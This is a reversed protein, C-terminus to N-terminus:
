FGRAVARLERALIAPAQQAVRDNMAQTVRTNSLAEPPGFTYLEAIPLRGKTFAFRGFAEGTPTGRAKGGYGGRAFVHQGFRKVMFAHPIVFTRGKVTVQVGQKTQRPRFLSLPFGKGKATISAELRGSNADEDEIYGRVQSAPVQYVDAIGRLGAVEAQDRLTNLARPLARALIADAVDDFQAMVQEINGSATLRMAPGIFFGRPSIGDPAKFVASEFGKLPYKACAYRFHLVM